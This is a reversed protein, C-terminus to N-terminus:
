EHAEVPIMVTYTSPLRGASFMPYVVDLYHRLIDDWSTFECGLLLGACNDYTLRGAADTGVAQTQILYENDGHPWVFWYQYGAGDDASMEIQAIYDREPTLAVESLTLHMVADDENGVWRLEYGADERVFRVLTQGEEIQDSPRFEYIAGDSFPAVADRDPLLAERSNFCGALAFVAVLAASMRVEVRRRKADTQVRAV